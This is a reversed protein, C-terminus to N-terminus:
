TAATSTATTVSATTVASTRPDATTSDAPAQQTSIVHSTSDVISQTFTTPASAGGGVGTVGSQSGTTSGQNSDSNLFNLFQNSVLDAAITVITMRTRSGNLPAQQSIINHIVQQAYEEESRTPVPTVRPTTLPSSGLVTMFNPSVPLITSGSSNGAPQRGIAAAKTFAPPMLIQSTGDPGVVIQANVATASTTSVGPKIMAGAYGAPLLPRPAVLPQGSSASPPLASVFNKVPSRVDTLSSNQQEITHRQASVNELVTGFSIVQGHTNTFKTPSAYVNAARGAAPATAAAAGTSQQQQQGAAVSTTATGNNDRKRVKPTTSTFEFTTAGGSSTTATTAADTM